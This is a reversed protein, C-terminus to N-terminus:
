GPILAMDEANAAPNKVVWGGPYGPVHAYVNTNGTQLIM